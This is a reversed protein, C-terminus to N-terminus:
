EQCVAFIQLQGPNLVYWLGSDTDKELSAPFKCTRTESDGNAYTLRIDFDTTGSAITQGNTLNFATRDTLLEINQVLGGVNQETISPNEYRKLLELKQQRDKVQEAISDRLYNGWTTVYDETVGAAAEEGVDEGEVPTPLENVEGGERGSSGGLSCASLFAALAAAAFALLLTRRGYIRVNM